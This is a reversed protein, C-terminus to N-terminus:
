SKELPVRRRRLLQFTDDELPTTLKEIPEASAVEFEIWGNSKDYDVSLVSIEDPINFLGKLESVSIGLRGISINKSM